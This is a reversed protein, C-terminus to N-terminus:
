VIDCKVTFHLTVFVCFCLYDTNFSVRYQIGSLLCNECFKRYSIFNSFSASIKHRRQYRFSDTAVTVNEIFLCPLSQKTTTKKSTKLQLELNFFM